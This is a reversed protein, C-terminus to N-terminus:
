YYYVFVIRKLSREIVIFLFVLFDSMCFVNASSYKLNSVFVIKEERGENLHIVYPPKRKYTDKYCSIGKEM